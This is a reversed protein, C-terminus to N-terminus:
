ANLSKTKKPVSVAQTSFLCAVSDYDDMECFDCTRYPRDARTTVKSRTDSKSAKM